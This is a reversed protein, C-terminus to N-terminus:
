LRCGGIQQLLLQMQRIGEKQSAIIAQLQPVLDPCLSFQLANESMCVAGKHHPIMERMFDADINNDTCATRMEHFMNSIIHSNQTKYCELEWPLNM